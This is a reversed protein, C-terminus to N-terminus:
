DNRICSYNRSFEKTKMIYKFMEEPSSLINTKVDTALDQSLINNYVSTLLINRMEDYIPCVMLFHFEDEVRQTNCCLCYRLKADIHRRVQKYGSDVLEYRGTEIRLPCIGIRFKTLLIRKERGQVIDLYREYGWEQKFLAYTRLKNGGTNKAKSEVRNIELEYWKSVAKNCLLRKCIVEWSEM